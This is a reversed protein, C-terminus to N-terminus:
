AAIQSKYEIFRELESLHPGTVNQVQLYDGYNELLEVGGRAFVSRYLGLVGSTRGGDPGQIDMVSGRHHFVGEQWVEIARLATDFTQLGHALEYLEHLISEDEHAILAEVRTIIQPDVDTYLEAYIFERVKKEKMRDDDTKKGAPIDGVVFGLRDEIESHMSEGMDHIRCAFMLIGLEEDTLGLEQEADLALAMHKATEHQHGIPHLDPGLDALMTERDYGFNDWFRLPQQDMHVGFESNHARAALEAVDLPAGDIDYVYARYAPSQISSEVTNTKLM